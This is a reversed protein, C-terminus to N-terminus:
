PWNDDCNLSQFNCWDRRPVNEVDRSLSLIAGRWNHPNRSQVEWQNTQGALQKSLDWGGSGLHRRSKVWWKMLLRNSCVFLTKLILYHCNRLHFILKSCELLSLTGTSKPGWTTPLFAMTSRVKFAASYSINLRADYDYVTRIMAKELGCFPRGEFTVHTHSDM